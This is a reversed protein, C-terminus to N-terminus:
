IITDTKMQYPRQNVLVSWAIRALKNAIAVIVKCPHMRTLLGKIWLSLRDSKGEHWNMVTRAGHILLRRLQRNGRKTMDINKDNNGSSHQGPTLGIWAAMNRGNKFQKGSSVSAILAAATIPGIGHISQLLDYSSNHSLLSEMQKEVQKIKVTKDLAEKHLDTLFQRAIISLKNEADELVYPTENLIKITGTPLVVGYESLLGRLQNIIATRQKVLRERIRDLSQIDQQEISKTPVFRATPRLSAEAIAIADNHDNKNGVVFPKVQFPPILKVTFGIEELARAWYNSSYCAEMVVMDAEINSFNNLVNERKVKKNFIIKQHSDMGCLQFVNKALDISIVKFNM